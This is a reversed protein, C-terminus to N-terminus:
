VVYIQANAQTTKRGLSVRPRKGLVLRIINEESGKGWGVTRCRSFTHVFTDALTAPKLDVPAKQLSFKKEILPM